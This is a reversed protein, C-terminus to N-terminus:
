PAFTIKPFARLVTSNFLSNSCCLTEMQACTLFCSQSRPSVVCGVVRLDSFYIAHIGATAWITEEWGSVDFELSLWM